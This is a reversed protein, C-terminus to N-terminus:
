LLPFYVNIFSLISYNIHLVLSGLREKQLHLPQRLCWVTSIHVPLRSWKVTTKLEFVNRAKANLAVSKKNGYYIINHLLPFQVWLVTMRLGDIWVYATVVILGPSWNQIVPILSGQWWSSSWTDTCVATACSSNQFFKQFETTITIDGHALTHKLIFKAKSDNSVNEIFGNKFPVIWVWM